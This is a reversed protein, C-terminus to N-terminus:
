YKSMLSSYHNIVQLLSSEFNMKVLGLALFVAFISKIFFSEQQMQINPLLKAMFGFFIDIFLCLLIFPLSLIFTASLTSLIHYLFNVFIGSLKSSLELFNLLQWPAIVQYSQFLVKLLVIFLGQWLFYVWIAQRFITSCISREAEYSPDYVQAINMGRATDFFEPIASLCDLSIVLPLSLLVGFLIEFFILGISFEKIEPSVVSLSFAIVLAFAIKVFLDSLGKGLPLFLSFGFARCFLLAFGM